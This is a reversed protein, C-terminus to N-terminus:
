LRAAAPAVGSSGATLTRNRWVAMVWFLMGAVVGVASCLPMLAAVTEWHPRGPPMALPLVTAGIMGVLLGALGVQWWDLWARARLVMFAPVGLVLAVPYALLSGFGSLIFSTGPFCLAFTSLAEHQNFPGACILAAACTLASVPALLFGLSVRLLATSNM